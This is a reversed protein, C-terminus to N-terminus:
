GDELHLLLTVALLLGAGAPAWAALMAPLAGSQGFEEAFRSFAFLSFGSIVGGSLMRAVGGRRTPRMSFGAAVLAMTGALLPLALLTQLHLRHRVSSFGARELQAIFGPLAWVSLTDPSAFSQQVRQLTVDTPLLLSTVSSPMEDPKITRAGILDWNGDRLVANKAEVREILKDTRDLRFVSVNGGVLIGHVVDLHQSHFIASGGPEFGPDDQRLWLEGGEFNVPGGTQRIYTDDLREAINYCASSIPSVGFTAIAGLAAAAIVPAALFQWASMGTARIVVLESSRALRWFCFIGGLLVAFPLLTLATWPLHLLTIETLIGLTAEPHTAARRLLEVFDFLAFLIALAALMGIVALIFRRTIYFALTGSM